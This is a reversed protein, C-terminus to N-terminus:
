LVYSNHKGLAHTHNTEKRRFYHSSLKKQSSRPQKNIKTVHIIVKISIQNKLMSNILTIM